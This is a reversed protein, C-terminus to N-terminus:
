ERESDKEDRQGNRMPRHLARTFVDHIGHKIIRQLLDAKKGYPLPDRLDHRHHIESECESPSLEREAINM